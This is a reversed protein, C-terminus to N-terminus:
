IVKPEYDFIDSYFYANKLGKALFAKQAAYVMEPPGSAYVQFNELSKHDALVKEHVLGVKGQWGAHSIKESLVPTYHFHTVNKVWRMILDHMYLDEPHRVGWYLHIPRTLGKAMSEEILAKFPAFGTGGALLIIPFQPEERYICTGYPGAIHLVSENNINALVQETFPNDGTHRFHLEIFNGDVPANAISFPKPSMDRHLIEIYQGAKYQLPEDAPQELLVQYIHGSLEKCQLVKCKIKRIPFEAPGIVDDMYIVCDTLPEASCFLAYGSEREEETLAFIIKNDYSVQGELLRGKCTGCVANRCSHPFEYGQRLAAELITEGERVLITYGKPKIHVSYFQLSM